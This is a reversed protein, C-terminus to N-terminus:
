VFVSLVQIFIVILLLAIPYTSAYSVAVDDSKAVAILSGLAPTSTMGGCISGLTNLLAMKLVRRALYYAILMPVITMVAGYLFLVPGYRLITAVFSKGGAIGSGTFFLMLGVERLVRLTQKPAAMSLQSVHGCHGLLLSAVLTGGTSGLSFIRVGGQAGLGWFGIGTTNLSLSGLLLGCVVSVAVPFLGLGELTIRRGLSSTPSETECPRMVGLKQVEAPMDAKLWAPVIQVFLVVGLVGFPYAIAYGTTANAGFAERAASLGPTTTLAGAFLGFAVDPAIGGFRIIAGCLMLDVAVISFAVLAYLRANCKFNAAFGPGATLGVSAIFCVLGLQEMMGLSHNLMLVTQGVRAPDAPLIEMATIISGIFHGAVLATLLIGSTGFSVGSINVRGVAYGAGIIVFVITLLMVVQTSFAANLFLHAIKDMSM